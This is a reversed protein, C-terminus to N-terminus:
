KMTNIYIKGGKMIQRITEIGENRRRDDMKKELFYLAIVKLIM